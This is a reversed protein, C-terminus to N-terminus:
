TPGGVELHPPAERPKTNAFVVAITIERPLPPALARELTRLCVRREAHLSPEVWVRARERSEDRSGGRYAEVRDAGTRRRRESKGVSSSAAAECVSSARAGDVGAWWTTPGAAPHWCQLISTRRGEGERETEVARHPPVKSGGARPLVQQCRERESRGGQSPEGAPHFLETLSLCRHGAAALSRPSTHSISFQRQGKKGKRGSARTEDAGSVSYTVGYVFAQLGSSAPLM